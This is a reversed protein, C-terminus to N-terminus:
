LEIPVPTTKRSKRPRNGAVTRQVRATSLGIRKGIEAFTLGEARAAMILERREALMQRRLAEAEAVAQHAEAAKDLVDSM